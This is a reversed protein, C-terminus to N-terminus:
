PLSLLPYSVAISKISINVKEITSMIVRKVEELKKQQELVDYIENITAKGKIQAM